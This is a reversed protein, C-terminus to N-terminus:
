DLVGERTPKAASLTCQKAICRLSRGIAVEGSSALSREVDCFCGVHM